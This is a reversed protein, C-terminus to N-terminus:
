GSDMWYAPCIIVGSLSAQQPTTDRGTGRYFFQSNAEIVFVQAKEMSQIPRADAAASSNIRNLTEVASGSIATPLAKVLATIGRPM